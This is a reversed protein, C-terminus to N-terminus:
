ALGGCGYPPQQRATANVNPISIKMARWMNISLVSIEIAYGVDCVLELQGKSAHRNAGYPKAPPPLCHRWPDCHVACTPPPASKRIMRCPPTNASARRIKVSRAGSKVRTRNPNLNANQSPPQWGWWKEFATQRRSAARGRARAPSRFLVIVLSCEGATVAKVTCDGAGLTLGCALRHVAGGPGDSRSFEEKSRTIVPRGPARYLISVVSSSPDAQRSRRVKDMCSEDSTRRRVSRGPLWAKKRATSTSYFPPPQLLPLKGPQLCEPKLGIAPIRPLSQRSDQRDTPRRQPRRDLQFQGTHSVRNRGGRRQDALAGCERQDPPAPQGCRPHIPPGSGRMQACCGFDACQAFGLPDLLDLGNFVLSLIEKGKFPNRVWQRLRLELGSNPLHVILSVGQPYQFAGRGGMHPEPELSNPRRSQDVIRRGAKLPEHVFPGTAPQGITFQQPM